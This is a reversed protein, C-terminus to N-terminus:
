PFRDLHEENIPIKVAQHCGLKGVPVTLCDLHGSRHHLAQVALVDAAHTHVEKQALLIALTRHVNALGFVNKLTEFLVDRTILM